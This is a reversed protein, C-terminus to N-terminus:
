VWRKAPQEIFKMQLTPKSYARGCATTELWFGVSVPWFCHLQMTQYKRQVTDPSTPWLFKKQRAVELNINDVGVGYRVIVKCRKLSEIVSGPIPAERVLIGDADRAIALVDDATQCDERALILEADIPQLIQREIDYSEYGLNVVAVKYKAM